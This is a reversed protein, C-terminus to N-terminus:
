KGKEKHEAIYGKAQIVDWTEQPAKWGCTCSAQWGTVYQKFIPTHSERVPM